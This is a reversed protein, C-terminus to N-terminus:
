TQTTLKKFDRISKYLNPETSNNNQYSTLSDIMDTKPFNQSQMLNTQNIPVIGKHIYNKQKQSSQERIQIKINM